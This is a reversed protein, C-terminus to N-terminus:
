RIRDPIARSNIKKYWGGLCWAKSPDRIKAYSSIAIYGNDVGPNDQNYQQDYRKSQKSQIASRVAKITDSQGYWQNNKHKSINEAKPIMKVIQKEFDLGDLIYNM